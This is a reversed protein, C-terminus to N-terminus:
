YEEVQGFVNLISFEKVFDTGADLSVYDDGQMGQESYCIDRAAKKSFGKEELAKRFEKIWNPDTYILGHKYTDWDKLNFYVRLEGHFRDRKNAHRSLNHIDCDKLNVSAKHNSWLGKGDTSATVNLKLKSM